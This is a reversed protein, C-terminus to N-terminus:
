RAATGAETIMWKTMMDRSIARKDMDYGQLIDVEAILVAASIMKLLLDPTTAEKMKMGHAEGLYQHAHIINLIFNEGKMVM